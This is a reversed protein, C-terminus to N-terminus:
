CLFKETQADFFNLHATSVIARVAQGVRLMGDPPIRSVFNHRGANLYVHCEPGLPEVAEVTARIPLESAHPEAAPLGIHEPRIGLTIPRGALPALTEKAADPIPLRFDGADFLLGGDRREIRGDFFNMAPSGILGAVFRNAPRQYLTLPDAVQQIRGARLVAIRQGLTMAETQDHTVYVTTTGLRAQLQRIQRRMDARLGADLNSLPEDFLFIKPRRVIARGLAVRQRQGGSLESPRRSLLPGLGLMDAAEVVRRRIEARGTRRMRLGFALNAQVSLHPYLAYNQFVMAVDRDKPAVSGMARGAIAIRGGSPEELGAILRLTTTKGCGSPGALVVFEGEAVSLTLDDVARVNGPYCKVVKELDLTAV